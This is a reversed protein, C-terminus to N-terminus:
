TPTARVLTNARMPRWARVCIRGIREGCMHDAIMEFLSPLKQAVSDHHKVVLAGQQRVTPREARLRQM